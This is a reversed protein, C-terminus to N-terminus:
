QEAQWHEVQDQEPEEQLALYEAMDAYWQSGAHHLEHFAVAPKEASLADSVIPAAFVKDAVAAVAVAAPSPADFVIAVAVIPVVIELKARLLEQHAYDVNLQVIHGLDASVVVFYSEEQNEEEMVMVMVTEQDEM